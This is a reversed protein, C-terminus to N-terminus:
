QPEVPCEKAPEIFCFCLLLYLCSWYFQFVKQVKSIEPLFHSTFSISTTQVAFSLYHPQLTIYICYICAQSKSSSHSYFIASLLNDSTTVLLHKTFSSNKLIENFECSFVQILAEKKIFLLGLFSVGICTNRTSKTFNKLVDKEYFVEPRSSKFWLTNQSLIVSNSFSSIFFLFNEAKFIDYSVESFGFCSSM